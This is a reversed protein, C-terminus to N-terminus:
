YVFRGPVAAYCGRIVYRDRARCVMLHGNESLVVERSGGGLQRSKLLCTKEEWGREEETRRGWREGGRGSASSAARGATFSHPHRESDRCTDRVTEGGKKGHTEGRRNRCEEDKPM